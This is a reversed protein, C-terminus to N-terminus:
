RPNLHHPDGAVWWEHPNVAHREHHIAVLRGLALVGVPRALRINVGCEELGRADRHYLPPAEPVGVPGLSRLHGNHALRQRAAEPRITLGDASEQATGVWVVGVQTNDADHAVDRHARKPFRRREGHIHGVGLGPVILEIEEGAGRDVRLLGRERHHGGPLLDVRLEPHARRRRHRPMQSHGPTGCLQAGDHEGHKHGSGPSPTWFHKSQPLRTSDSRAPM